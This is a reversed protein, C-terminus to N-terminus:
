GFLDFFGGFDIGPTSDNGGFPWDFGEDEYEGWVYLQVESGKIQGSGVEPSIEAVTNATHSGDNNKEIIKVVFGAEELKLQAEEKDM